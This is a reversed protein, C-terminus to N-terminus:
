KLKYAFTRSINLVDPERFCFQPKLEGPNITGKLETAKFWWGVFKLAGNVEDTFQFDLDTRKTTLIKEKRLKFGNLGQVQITFLHGHSQNLSKSQNRIKSLIKGDGSFHAKGDYPHSYKILHSTVKGGRLLSLSPVSTKNAPFTAKSLLGKSEAFYPFNVLIHTNKSNSGNHFLIQFIKHTENQNKVSVTFLESRITPLKALTM